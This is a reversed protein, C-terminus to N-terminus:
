ENWLMLDLITLQGNYVVYSDISTIETANETPPTGVDGISSGGYYSLNIYLSYEEINLLEKIKSGSMSQMESFKSSDIVNQERTTLGLVKVTSENWNSPYGPSMILFASAVYARRQMEMRDEWDQARVSVGNWTHSILLVIIIFVMMALLLDTSFVQGRNKKCSKYM